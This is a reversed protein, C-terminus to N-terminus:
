DEVKLTGLLSEVLARHDPQEEARSSFFLTTCRGGPRAIVIGHVLGHGNTTRKELVVEMADKGDIKRPGSRVVTGEKGLDQRMRDGMVDLSTTARFDSLDFNLRADRNEYSRTFPGHLPVQRWGEPFDM